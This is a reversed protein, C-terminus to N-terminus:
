GDGREVSMVYRMGCGDAEAEVSRVEWGRSSVWRGKGEKGM